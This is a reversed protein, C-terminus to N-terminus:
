KEKEHKSPEEKIIGLKKAELIIEVPLPKDQAEALRMLGLVRERPHM